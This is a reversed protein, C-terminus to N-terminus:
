ANGQAPSPEAGAISGGGAAGGTGGGAGGGAGGTAGGGTGRQKEEAYAERGAEIASALQERKATITERGADLLDQAKQATQGYLDQARQATQSAVSTAVDGVYQAGQKGYDVSKRATDAIDGRLERGAKPAFLLAVAAGIGAGILFYTLRDATTGGDETTAAQQSERAM